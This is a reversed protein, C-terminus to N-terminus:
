RSENFDNLLAAIGTYDTYFPIRIIKGPPIIMSGKGLGNARAITFWFTEDGYYEKALLDLRDGQQSVIKTDDAGTSLDPYMITSIRRVTKVNGDSEIKRSNPILYSNEYRNAM